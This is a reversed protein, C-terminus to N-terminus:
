GKKLLTYKKGTSITKYKAPKIDILNKSRIIFVTNPTERNIVTQTNEWPDEGYTVAKPGYYNLSFRRGTNLTYIKLNNTKAYEGYKILDNQGFGFDLNFYKAMGFASLVLVFGVYTAFLATRKGLKAFTLALTSSVFLLGITFWKVCVIDAYIEKPLFFQTFLAVISAVFFLGFLIYTAVQIPKEYKANDIYQVWAWAMLSAAAFYIPLIYTILKSSSSSFFAMTVVFAILNFALYKQTNTLEISMLGSFDKKFWKKVESIFITIASLIWPCFGWLFTLMFFYFPQKRGLEHSSDIFRALHHKIIYENFFLPDHIKFMLLHWPLAVLLFLISGPIIYQPKFIEKFKKTFISVFFMTGFPVAIGPVGKAMVALGSFIYFLWWFYKKNEEKVFYTLFGFCIAFEICTALLIDLIAYKALIIFEVSTALILASIIGYKRSVAKKGTFYLLLTSLTGYMAVPFRASFENVVHFLKFSLVEGWFFLPPKEFFFQGNLFLTMYDKSHFMDRAMTIYRTEDVDMLAYHGIGYFFMFYCFILLGLITFFEPHKKIFDIM